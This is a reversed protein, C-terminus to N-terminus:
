ALELGNDLPIPYRGPGGAGDRKLKRVAEKLKLEEDWEVHAVDCRKGCGWKAVKKASAAAFAKITGEFCHLYSEGDKDPAMLRVKIKRGV